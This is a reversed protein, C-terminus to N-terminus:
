ENIEVGSIDNIDLVFSSNQNEFKLYMDKKLMAYGIIDCIKSLTIDENGDASFVKKLTISKSDDNDNKVQFCSFSKFSIKSVKGSKLIIAVTKINNAM